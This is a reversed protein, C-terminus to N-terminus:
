WRNVGDALRMGVTVKCYDLNKREGVRESLLSIGSIAFM